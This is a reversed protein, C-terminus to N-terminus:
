QSEEEEVVFDEEPGDGVELLDFLEEAPRLLASPKTREAVHPKKPELKARAEIIRRLTLVAAGLAKPERDSESDIEGRGELWRTLREEAEDLWAQHRATRDKPKM